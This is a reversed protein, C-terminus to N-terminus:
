EQTDKTVEGVNKSGIEYINMVKPKSIVIKQKTNDNEDPYIIYTYVNYITSLNKANNVDLRFIFDYRGLSTLSDTINTLDYVNYYYDYFDGETASSWGKGSAGSALGGGIALLSSEVYYEDFTPAIFKEPTGDYPEAKTNRELAIGFKIGSNEAKVLDKFSVTTDSTGFQVLFDAYVNDVVKGENNTYKERTYVADQLNTYYKPVDVANYIAKYYSNFTVRVDLTTNYSFIEGDNENYNGSADTLYRMWYSFKKTTEEGNITETITKPTELRINNNFEVKHYDPSLKNGALVYTDFKKLEQIAELEAYSDRAVVKSLRWECSTFVEDIPPAYQSVLTNDPIYNDKNIQNVDMPVNNVVYQQWTGYRDKYKYVLTANIDTKNFDSFFKFTKNKVQADGTQQYWNWENEYLTYKAKLIRGKADTQLVKLCKEDDLPTNYDNGNVDKELQRFTLFTDAGYREATLIIQYMDGDSIKVNDITNNVDTYEEPAAYGDETKRKIILKISTKGDGGGPIPNKLVSTYVNHTIAITGEDVEKFVAFVTSHNGFITEYPNNTSLPTGMEDYFGVFSHKGVNEARLTATTGQDIIDHDRIKNVTAYGVTDEDQPVLKGDAKVLTGESTMLGSKVTITIQPVSTMYYWKGDVMNSASIDDCYSVLYPLGIYSQPILEYGSNFTEKTPSDKTGKFYTLKNAEGLSAMYAANTISTNNPSMAGEITGYGSVQQSILKNTTGDVFYNYVAFEMGYDNITDKRDQAGYRAGFIKSNKKDLALKDNLAALEEAVTMTTDTYVDTRKIEKGNADIIRNGFVDIYYGEIDVDLEFQGNIQTEGIVYETGNDYTVTGNSKNDTNIENAIGDRVGPKPEFTINNYGLKQLKIFENFDFTKVGEGAKFLIGYLNSQVYAVYMDTGDSSKGINLMTQGPFGGEPEREINVPREETGINVHNVAKNESRWTYYAPEYVPNGGSTLFHDGPTAKLYLATFTIGKDKAYADSVSFVPTVVASKINSPFTYNCEYKGNGLGRIPRTSDSSVLSNVVSTVRKSGNDLTMLISYGYVQYMYGTYSLNTDDSYANEVTETTFSVTLDTIEKTINKNNSDGDLYSTGLEGEKIGQNMTVTYGDAPTPPPTVSLSKAVCIEAANTGNAPSFVIYFPDNGAGNTKFQQKWSSYANVDANITQFSPHRQSPNSTQYYYTGDNSKINYLYEDNGNGTIEVYYYPDGDNEVYTMTTASLPTKVTENLNTSTGIDSKQYKYLTYSGAPQSTSTFKVYVTTDSTVNLITYSTNTGADSIKSDSTCDANSYWGEVTYTSDTPSATFTVSSGSTVTYDSFITNGGSQASLSGGVGCVDFTIKPNSVEINGKREVWVDPRNNADYADRVYIRYIGTESIKFAKGNYTPHAEYATAPTSNGKVWVDEDGTTTDNERAPGFSNDGYKIRFYGKATDTLEVDLYHTGYVDFENSVSSTAEWDEYSTGVIPGNITYKATTDFNFWYTSSNNYIKNLNLSLAIDASQNSNTGDNFQVKTAGDPVAIKYISENTAVPTMKTGPHTGGVPGNDNWFYAYVSSWQKKNKVYVYNVKVFKAYLTTNAAVSVTYENNTSVATGTCDATSYWGKFEYDTNATAKFTVSTKYDVTDDSDVTNSSSDTATVSGFSDMGTGVGYTVTNKYNQWTGQYNKNDKLYKSVVFIKSNTIWDSGAKNKLEINETQKSDNNFIVKVTHGETDVTSTDFTLDYKFVTASVSTMKSGPWNGAMESNDGYWAYINPKNSSSGLEPMNTCDIYVTATVNAASVSSITGILMTSVIMMISLVVSLTRKGVHIFKTKM